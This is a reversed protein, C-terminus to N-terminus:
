CLNAFDKKYVGFFIAIIYPHYFRCNINLTNTDLTQQM